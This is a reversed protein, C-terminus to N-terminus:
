NFPSVNNNIESAANSSIESAAKNSIESATNSCTPLRRILWAPFRRRDVLRFGGEKKNDRFGCKM